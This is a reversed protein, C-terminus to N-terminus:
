MSQLFIDSLDSSKGGGGKKGVQICATLSLFAFLSCLDYWFKHSTFNNREQLHYFLLFILITRVTLPAVPPRTPSPRSPPPLLTSFMM